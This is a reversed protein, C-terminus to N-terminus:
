TLFCNPIVFLIHAWNHPVFLKHLRVSCVKRRYLQLLILRLQQKWLFAIIVFYHDNVLQRFMTLEEIASGVANWCVVHQVFFALYSTIGFYNSKYNYV